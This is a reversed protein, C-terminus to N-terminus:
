EFDNALGELYAEVSACEVLVARGVHATRIKREKSIRWLTTRSIAYLHEIEAPRAWRPTIGDKDTTGTLKEGRREGVNGWKSSTAEAAAAKKETVTSGENAPTEV